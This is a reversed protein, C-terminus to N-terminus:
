LLTYFLITGAFVSKKRRRLPNKALDSLSHMMKITIVSATMWLPKGGWMAREWDIIGSVDGDKIFVNGEWLDWHVLTAEKIESFAERNRELEALLTDGDYVIDIKRAKADHILNTLMKKVFDYLEDYRSEDGLFGFQPNTIQTLKKEICGVETSIEDIQDQTMSDKM